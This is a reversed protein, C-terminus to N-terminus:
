LRSFHLLQNNAPMSIDAELQFALMKLEKIISQSERIGSNKDREKLSADFIRNSESTFKGNYLFPGYFFIHSNKNLVQNAFQFLRLCLPWSVIHLVNACYLIDYRSNLHPPSELDLEIPGLLRPCNVGRIWQRIGPHREKLDSTTWQVNELKPAMFSAHQGTGSGIEFLDLSPGKPLRAKLQEFIPVANREAAPSFPRDDSLSM